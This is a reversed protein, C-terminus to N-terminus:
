PAVATGTLEDTLPASSDNPINLIGVDTEAGPPMYNVTLNTVAGANVAIPQWTLNFEVFKASFAHNTDDTITPQATITVLAECRNTIAVQIGAGQGADQTGFAV